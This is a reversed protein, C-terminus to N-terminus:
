QQADLLYLSYYSGEISSEFCEKLVTPYERKMKDKQTKQKLVYWVKQEHDLHIDYEEELTNFYMQMETTIVVDNDGEIRYDPETQWPSFHLKFEIDTPDYGREQNEFAEM